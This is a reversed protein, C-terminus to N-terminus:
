RKANANRAKQIQDRNHNQPFGFRQYFVHFFVHRRSNRPQDANHHRPQLYSTTANNSCNENRQCNNRKQCLNQRRQRHRVFQGPRFIEGRVAFPRALHHVKFHKRQERNRRTRQGHRKRIAKQQLYSAIANNEITSVIKM